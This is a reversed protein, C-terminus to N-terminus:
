IFSDVENLWKYEYGLIAIALEGGKGHFKTVIEFLILSSFDCFIVFISPVRRNHSVSGM